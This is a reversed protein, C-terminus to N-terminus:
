FTGKNTGSNLFHVLEQSNSFRPIVEIHGSWRCLWYGTLDVKRRTGDRAIVYCQRSSIVVDERLGNARCEASFVLLAADARRAALTACVWQRKDDFVGALCHGFGAYESVRRPTFDRQLLGKWDDGGEMGKPLEGNSSDYSALEHAVSKMIGVVSANESLIQLYRYLVFAAALFGATILVIHASRCRRKPFVKAEVAPEEM